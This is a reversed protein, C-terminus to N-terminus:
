LGFELFSFLNYLLVMVVTESNKSWFVKVLFAAIFLLKLDTMVLSDFFIDSVIGNKM